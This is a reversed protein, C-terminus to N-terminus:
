HGMFAYAFPAAYQFLRIREVGIGVGTANVIWRHGDGAGVYLAVHQTVLPTDWHGYFFALDGPKLFWRAPHGSIWGARAARCGPIMGRKIQDLQQGSNHPLDILGRWAALTSGSCDYGDPGAAGFQYPSGVQALAREVVEARQAATVSM